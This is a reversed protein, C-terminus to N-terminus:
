VSNKVKTHCIEHDYHGRTEDMNSIDPHMKLPQKLYDEIYNNEKQLIMDDAFLCM